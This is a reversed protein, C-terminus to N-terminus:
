PVPIYGNDMAQGYATGPDGRDREKIAFSVVPLGIYIQPATPSDYAETFDLQAWGNVAGSLLGSADVVVPKSSDVVSEALSFQVM